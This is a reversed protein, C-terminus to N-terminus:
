QQSFQKKLYLAAVRDALRDLTKSDKELIRQLPADLVEPKTELLEEVIHQVNEPSSRHDKYYNLADIIVVTIDVGREEVESMVFEYLPKPIKGQIKVTEKATRVM